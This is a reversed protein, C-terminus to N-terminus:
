KDIPIPRMYGLIYGIKYLTTYDRYYTYMMLLIDEASLKPKRGGKKLKEKLAEEILVVQFEFIEREIGVARKFEKHSKKKLIDAKTNENVFCFTRNYFNTFFISKCFM